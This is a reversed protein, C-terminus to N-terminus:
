NIFIRSDYDLAEGAAFAREMRFGAGGVDGFDYSAHRGAFTAGGVFAPGDEVRNAFGDIFSVRVRRNNENRRREGGIGDHFGSVGLDVEDDADGFANGREVHDFGPFEQLVAARAEDTGITGADDRGAFALDADHGGRNVFFSRDADDRAGARQGVFRHMLQRLAADSLGGGDADTTVGDDAGIEDIRQVQEVAIGLGFGYDHDSFDAAVGLFLGRVKHLSM